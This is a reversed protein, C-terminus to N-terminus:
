ISEYVNHLDKKILSAAVLSLGIGMMSFSVYYLFTSRMVLGAIGIFAGSHCSYVTAFRLVDDDVNFM